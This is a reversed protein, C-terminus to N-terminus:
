RNANGYRENYKQKIFDEPANPNQQLREQKYQEYSKSPGKRIAAEGMEDIKKLTNLLIEPRFEKYKEILEKNDEREFDIPNPVSADVPLGVAKAASTRQDYQTKYKLLKPGYSANASMIISEMVEDTFFEGTAFSEAKKMMKKIYAGLEKVMQADGERVAGEPDNIRSFAYLMSLQAGGVREVNGSAKLQKQLQYNSHIKEYNDQVAFFKKQSDTWSKSWTNVAAADPLGATKTKLRQEEIKSDLLDKEAGLRDIEKQFNKYDDSDRTGGAAIYNDRDLIAKGLATQATRSLKKEQYSTIKELVFSNALKRTAEAQEWSDPLTKGYPTGEMKKKLQRYMNKQVVPNKEDKITNLARATLLSTAEIAQAKASASESELKNAQIIGTTYAQQAARIKIAEEIKGMAELKDIVAPYGGESHAAALEEQEKQAKAAKQRERLDKSYDLAFKQKQLNLSEQQRQQTALQMQAVAPDTSRGQSLQQRTLRGKLYGM